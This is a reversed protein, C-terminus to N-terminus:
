IEPNLLGRVSIDEDIDEWHIGIGPGIFRWNRKQEPTSDRLRPFWELPASVVRGDSLSVELSDDDVRVDIARADAMVRATALLTNM